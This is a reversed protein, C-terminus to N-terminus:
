GGVDAARERRGGREALRADDLEPPRGDIAARVVSEVAYAVLAPAEAPIQHGAHEAVILPAAWQAALVRQSVQWLDDLAPHKMPRGEYTWNRRRVLVVAPVRPVAAALIEVQGTLFDIETAGAEDGDLVPSPDPWLVLQPVSGDVAVFGAVRGPHRGAFARAILSGLSHGVLVAPRDVGREDLVGALEDALVSYPLPPNPGPRPPAAGTGPRDYTIAVLGPDLRDLVPQWAAGPDGLASVFVVSPAADIDM